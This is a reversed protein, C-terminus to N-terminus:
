EATDGIDIAIAAKDPIFSFSEPNYAGM